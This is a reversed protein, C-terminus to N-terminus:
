EKARRTPPHEAGCKESLIKGMEKLTDAQGNPVARGSKFYASSYRKPSLPQKYIFYITEGDRVGHYCDPATEIIEFASM